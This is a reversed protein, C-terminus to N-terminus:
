AFSEVPQSAAEFVPEDEGEPSAQLSDIYLKAYPGKMKILTDHHGQEAIRGNELMLILDAEMATSLRHTVIFTTRMQVLKRLARRVEADMAPDLASTAEDLLLIRPNRLLARAFCILQREGLSLNAGSEGVNTDYGHKLRMVRDHAGLAKMALYIEDESILPRDYKLNERITGRFLFNAQLVLAMQQHLSQDTALRADNEDLLLRGEDPVYFRALLALLTSKGSGTAGVLAVTAGAPIEFNLNKLVPQGPIYGFSVNEAAVRGELPPLDRAGPVDATTMPEDFISLVRDAASSAIILENFFGGFNVAPMMFWEWYLSISVLDGTQMQGTVVRYGGYLLLIAQGLFRIWQLAPQFTGNQRSVDLANTTNLDQLENYSRLNDEQRNFAAVVRAGSINEAQNASVAAADRRLKQWSQNLRSGYVFNLATMLPALWVVAAFMHWDIRAIMIASFVLFSANSTVTNPGWIALSRLSDLDTGFVGLIRGMHNTDFFRVGLNQMRGFLDERVRALVKEGTASALYVQLGHLIQNSFAIAAWLGVIKLVDMLEFPGASMVNIANGVLRTPVMDLAAMFVGMSCIVIYRYRYKGLRQLLRWLSKQTISHIKM